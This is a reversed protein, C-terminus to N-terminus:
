LKLALNYFENVLEGYYKGSDNKHGQKFDQTIDASGKNYAIAVYIKETNTLTTKGKYTKIRDRAAKLENIVMDIIKDIDAWEKQLFFTPNIKFHQLDYQFIGYGRCFKDPNNEYLNKFTTNWRGVNKLAERAVSFMEKGDKYAELEERNKPFANRKPFDLTDGTCCLLLDDPTTKGIMKSWVYGTEQYAIAMILPLDFPTGPLKKNIKDQYTDKFWLMSKEVSSLQKEQTKVQLSKLTDKGLVGDVVLGKIRQYNSVALATETDYRNDISGHYINLQQLKTKTEEVIAHEMLPNTVYFNFPPNTYDFKFDPNITYSINNILLGCDWYRGKIVSKCVNEKSSKAEITGANGDSFVIHGISIGKFGPPRLLIAGPTQAAESISIKKCQKGIENAWYGTYSEDGQIGVKIGAAQYVIYSIFEACDWPGKYNPNEFPVKAGLVYKQGLHRSALDIFQRGTTM